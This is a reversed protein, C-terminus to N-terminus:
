FFGFYIKFYIHHTLPKEQFLLSPQLVESSKETINTLKQKVQMCLFLYYLFVKVNVM